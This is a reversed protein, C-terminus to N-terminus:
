VCGCGCVLLPCAGSDVAVEEPGPYVEAPCCAGPRACTAGLLTYEVAPVMGGAEVEAAVAAAAPVAPTGRAPPLTLLLLLLLPLLLLPTRGGAVDAAVYAGGCTCAGYAYVGGPVADGLVDELVDLCPDADPPLTICSAWAGFWM